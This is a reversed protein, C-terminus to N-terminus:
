AGSNNCILSNEATCAGNMYLGSGGSELTYTTSAGSSRCGGSIRCRVIRGGNHMMVNAGGGAGNVNYISGDLIDCDVVTGGVMYINGGLAGKISADM